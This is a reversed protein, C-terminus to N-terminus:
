PSSVITARPKPRATASAPAPSPMAAPAPASKTDVAPNAAAAKQADLLPWIEGPQPPSPRTRPPPQWTPQRRASVAEIGRHRM